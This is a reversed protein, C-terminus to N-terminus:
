EMVTPSCNVIKGCQPCLALKTQNFKVMNDDRERFILFKTINEHKSICHVDDFNAFEMLIVKFTNLASTVPLKDVVRRIRDKISYFSELMQREVAHIDIRPNGWIGLSFAHPGIIGVM